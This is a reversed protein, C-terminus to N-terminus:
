LAAGLAILAGTLAHVMANAKLASVLQPGTTSRGVVRVPTVALPAALLGLACLRPVWGASAFVALSAFAGGVLAAYLVRTRRRGLVVALTRKGVRGDTGIDRINNAILIATVLFGIPVALLWAELPASRDHVFRSGVTAALGFFVFVFPEGLARYGYPWPGGTYGLAAILSAAGIVLIPWGAIAALYIGCGTAVAFVSAVGAWMERPTLLGSAVARAPGIRDPTDAGRRADSADNAFNVGINLAVAAATTAAFADWRFVGDGAALGSGVLVPSVVALLTPPRAALVFARARNV